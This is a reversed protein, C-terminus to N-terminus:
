NAMALGADGWSSQSFTIKEDRWNLLQSQSLIRLVRHRDRDGFGFAPLNRGSDRQEMFDMVEAAPLETGIRGSFGRYLEHYALELQRSLPSDTAKVHRRREVSVTDIVGAAQAYKIADKVRGEARQDKGQGVGRRNLMPELHGFPMSAVRRRYCEASLGAYVRWIQELYGLQMGQGTASFADDAGKRAVEVASLADLARNLQTGDDTQFPGTRLGSVALGNPRSSILRIAYDIAIISAVRDASLRLYTRTANKPLWEGKDMVAADTRVVKETMENVLSWYQSEDQNELVGWRALLNTRDGKERGGLIFGRRQLELLGLLSRLGTDRKKGILPTVDAIDLSEVGPTNLTQRLEASLRSPDGYIVTVQRGDQHLRSILPIFDQDGTVLFFNGVGAHLYDMALVTLVIDAQEKTSRVPEAEILHERMAVQISGDIRAAAMHSHHLQGGCRHNAFTWLDDVYSRHITMGRRLISGVLNEWDMLLVGSEAPSGPREM